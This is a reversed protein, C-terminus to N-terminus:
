EGVEIRHGSAAAIGDAEHMTIRALLILLDNPEHRRSERKAIHNGSASADLEDELSETRLRGGEDRFGILLRELSPEGAEYVPDIPPLVDCAHKASGAGKEPVVPGEPLSEGRKMSLLAVKALAEGTKCVDNTSICSVSARSVEDAVRPGSAGALPQDEVGTPHDSGGIAHIEPEPRHRGGLEDNGDVGVDMADAPVETQRAAAGCAPDGCLLDRAPESLEIGLVRDFVVERETVEADGPLTRAARHVVLARATDQLFGAAYPSRM